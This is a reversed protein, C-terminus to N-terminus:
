LNGHIQLQIAYSGYFIWHNADIIMPQWQNKYIEIYKNIIEIIPMITWANWHNETLKMCKWLHENTKM